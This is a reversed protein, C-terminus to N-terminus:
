FVVNMIVSLTFTYFHSGLRTIVVEPCGFGSYLTNTAEVAVPAAEATLRSRRRTGELQHLSSQLPLVEAAGGCGRWRVQLGPSQRFVGRFLHTAVVSGAELQKKKRDTAQETQM